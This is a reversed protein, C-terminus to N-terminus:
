TQSRMAARLDFWQDVLGMMGVLLVLLVNLGPMLLLVYVPALLAPHWRKVHAWAHLVAAGQLFFGLMALLTLNQVVAADFVLGLVISVTLISGLVRGLKLARFDSGFRREGVALLMWWFGLLLACIV